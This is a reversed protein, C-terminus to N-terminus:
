ETRQIIHMGFQSKVVGTQAYPAHVRNSRRRPTNRRAHCRQDTVLRLSPEHLITALMITLEYVACTAGICRRHGGGFPM